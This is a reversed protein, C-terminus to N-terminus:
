RRPPSSTRRAKRATSSVQNRLRSFPPLNQHTMRGSLCLSLPPRPRSRARLLDSFLRAAAVRAMPAASRRRARAVGGVSARLPQTNFDRWSPEASFFQRSRRVIANAARPSFARRTRALRVKSRAPPTTERWPQPHSSRRTRRTACLEGLARKPSGLSDVVSYRTSAEIQSFSVGLIM